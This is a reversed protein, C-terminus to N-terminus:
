HLFLLLHHIKLQRLLNTLENPDQGFIISLCWFVINQLLLHPSKLLGLLLNAFDDSEALSQVGFEIIKKGIAVIANACSEETTSSLAENYLRQIEVKEEFSCVSSNEFVNAMYNIVAHTSCLHIAKFGIPSDKLSLNARELM